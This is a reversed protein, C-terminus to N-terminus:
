ENIELRLDGKTLVMKGGGLIDRIKKLHDAEEATIQIDGFSPGVKTGDETEVCMETPVVPEEEVSLINIAEQITRAALRKEENNSLLTRTNPLQWHKNNFKTYNIAKYGFVLCPDDYEANGSSKIDDIVVEHKNSIDLIFKKIRELLEIDETKLNWGILAIKKM